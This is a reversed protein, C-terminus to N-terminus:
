PRHGLADLLPVDNQTWVSRPLVENSFNVAAVVVFGALNEEM